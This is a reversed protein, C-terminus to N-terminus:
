KVRSRNNIKTIYAIKKALKDDLQKPTLRWKWNGLTGPNNITAKEDLGLYDQIQAIFLNAVSSMGARIFGYNYGELENLGYYKIAYNLDKKKAHKFWGIM